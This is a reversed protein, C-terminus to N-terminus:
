RSFGTEDGALEAHRFAHGKLVLSCGGLFRDLVVPWFADIANSYPIGGGSVLARSM